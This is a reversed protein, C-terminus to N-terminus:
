PGVTLREQIAARASSGGAMVMVSGQELRWGSREQDWYALDQSRLPIEVTRTEGPRLPVRTFGKLEKRPRPVSSGIHSVYLQAVESGSRSGTNTVDVRVTITANEALNPASFRLNSYAFTTYSLGHGFPYLLEAASYMYTRGKRLDYDEIPPLQDVSTPWTQTLRGGPNYDGFLVDAIARGQEQASHTTWLIAPVNQETWNIAYPFSYVLIVITRRNAGFVAQILGEEALDLTTRDRGERGEGPDPCPRTSLDANVVPPMELVDGCFPHNGVVVIAVDSSKAAEIAQNGDNNPAFRVRADSGVKNRIADLIPVTYPMPGGYLDILTRDAFRGIVAVSHTSGRDLPLTAGANKLLVISEHAVDSAVAKHRETTWPAPEGSRGIGSYSVQRAPDLLGLRIVTRFKGRLAKDLDSESFAGAEFAAHVAAVIDTRPWLIQNIGSRITAGIAEDETKFYKHDSVLLRIAGADSSVIGDAGWEAAVVSRLVDHVTMPVRNMANYAAMVSRAGALFGMRFPVSYYERFLRQDFDSSSHGRTTENSNALFHKMLSAAQWYNPDDGQMGRIFAASLTGTLFSDEGFSEENRGWRPDRSLDANPGWVVLVPRNDHQTVYRAEYGQVAGARGILEADWTAGMGVVQGFSTTPIAPSTATSNRVLGHLGESNGANPIGLRPVATSSTLCALKEDLTMLSLINTVRDEIPSAADRFPYEVQAFPWLSAALLLAAVTPVGRQLRM